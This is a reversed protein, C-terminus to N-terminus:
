EGAPRQPALQTITPEYRSIDPVPSITRSAFETTISIHRKLGATGGPLGTITATESFYPTPCLLWRGAPGHSAGPMSQAVLRGDRYGASVSPRVPGRVLVRGVVRNVRVMALGTTSCWGAWYPPPGDGGRSSDAAPLRGSRGGAAARCCTAAAAAVAAAAAPPLPPADRRCPAAADYEVMKESCHVLEEERLWEDHSYTHGPGPWRVLYRIVGRVRRRNLLLEM